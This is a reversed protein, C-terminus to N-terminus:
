ARIVSKCFLLILRFSFWMRLPKNSILYLLSHGKSKCFTKINTEKHNQHYFAKLLEFHLQASKYSYQRHGREEVLKKYESVPRQSNLLKSQNQNAVQLHAAKMPKANYETMSREHRRYQIFVQDINAGEGYELVDCWFQYDETGFLNKYTIRNNVVVDRKFMVSSHIFPNKFLIRWRIELPDVSQKWISLPKDDHNIIQAWTGCIVLNPNSEMYQYQFQLRDPMAKDDADLRAIYKGRAHSIGRNLSEAMGLNKENVILRVRPSNLSQLYLLSDDTSCDEVVLVEFEAFTQRLVSEIASPLYPMGNYVSILVTVLPEM